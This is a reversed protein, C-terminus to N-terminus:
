KESTSETSSSPTSGDWGMRASIYEQGIIEMGTRLSDVLCDEVWTHKDWLDGELWKAPIGQTITRHTLQHDPDSLVVLFQLINPAGESKEAQQDISPMTYHFPQLRLYVSSYTTPNQASSQAPEQKPNSKIQEQLNAEALRLATEVSDVANLNRKSGTPKERPKSETGKNVV